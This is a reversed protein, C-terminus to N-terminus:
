KKPFKDKLHDIVTYNPFYQKLKLIHHDMTYRYEAETLEGCVTLTKNTADTLFADTYRMRIGDCYCMCLGIDFYKTVYEVPDKNLVIIQYRTEFLNMWVDWVSVVHNARGTYAANNLRTVSDADTDFFFSDFNLNFPDDSIDPEQKETITLDFLKALSKENIARYESDVPESSEYANWIFIDIDNPWRDLYADRVAGGGIIASQYGVSQLKRLVYIDDSMLQKM